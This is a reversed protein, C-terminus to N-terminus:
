APVRNLWLIFSLTAMLHSPLTLFAYKKCLSTRMFVFYEKVKKQLSVAQTHSHTYMHVCVINKDGNYVRRLHGFSKTKHKKSPSM